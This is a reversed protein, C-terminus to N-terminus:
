PNDNEVLTGVLCLDGVENIYIVIVDYNNKIVFNSDGPNNCDPAKDSCDGVEICLNGDNDVYAVTNAASDKIVFADAPATCDGGAICNGKLVINGRGSFTAVAEENKKITFPQTIFDEVFYAKVTKDDDMTITTPNDNGSADMEWHDFMYGGAAVATLTVEEDLDYVSKDPNATISGWEEDYYVGLTLTYGMIGGGGCVCMGTVNVNLLGFTFNFGQAYQRTRNDEIVIVGEKDEVIEIFEIKSITNPNNYCGGPVIEDCHESLDYQDPDETTYFNYNSINGLLNLTINEYILSLRVPLNIKFNDLKGESNKKQLIISYNRVETDISGINITANIKKNDMDMKTINYVNEFVSLNLKEEFKTAVKYSINKEIKDISQNYFYKESEGSDKNYEYEYLAPYEIYQYSVLKDQYEKAGYIEKTLSKNFLIDDSVKRLTAEVYNKVPQLESDSLLTKTKSTETKKVEVKEKTTFLFVFFFIMVIGLIIFLTIQGRKVRM